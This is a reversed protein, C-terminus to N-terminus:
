KNLERKFKKWKKIYNCNISKCKVIKYNTFLMKNCNPCKINLFIFSNSNKNKTFKKDKKKIRNGNLKPM